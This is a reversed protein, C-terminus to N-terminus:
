IETLRCRTLRTYKENNYEEKAKVTGAIKVKDGVNYVINTSTSWKIINDGSKFTINSTYGWRGEYGYISIIEAVIDKVKEGEEGIWESNSVPLMHKAADKVFQKASARYTGSGWASFDAVDNASIRIVGEEFGDATPRHWGLNANYKFGANKLENKRAYSDPMIYCFTFGDESFAEDELWKAKKEDAQAALKAQYEELKAKRKEERREAARLNAQHEKETYLRITKYEYGRGECGYCVGNDNIYPVPVGNEVHSIAIGTGNCRNCKRKADVVLKCNDNKYAKTIDYIFDKYSEAVFYEM